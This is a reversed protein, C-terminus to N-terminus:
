DSQMAPDHERCCAKQIYRLKKSAVNNTIHHLAAVFQVTAYTGQDVMPM